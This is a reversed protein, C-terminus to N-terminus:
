ACEKGMAALITSVVVEEGAKSSVLLDYLHRDAWDQGFHLRVYGARQADMERLLAAADGQAGCRKAARALRDAYPAYLFVHFVGPRDQLLCQSGRGVIVCNGDQAAQLVLSRTLRAMTGADFFDTETVPAVGEFAGRWLADRGLRHLWSDVREDYGRALDPDVQTAKAIEEILASDLLKWGLRDAVAAAIHAGGSGFERAVTLVRYM